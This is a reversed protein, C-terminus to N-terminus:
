FFFRTGINMFEASKPSTFVTQYKTYMEVGKINWITFRVGLTMFVGFESEINNDGLRESADGIFILTNNQIGGATFLKIKSKVFFLAKIELPISIHYFNPISEGKKSQFYSFHMGSGIFLRESLKYQLEGGVELTSKWFENIDKEPLLYSINLGFNIRDWEIKQSYLNSTVLVSLIVITTLTLRRNMVLGGITIDFVTNTQSM